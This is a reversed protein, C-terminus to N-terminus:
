GRGLSRFDEWEAVADSLRETRVVVVDGNVALSSSANSSFSVDGWVPFWSGVLKERAEAVLPGPTWDSLSRPPRTWPPLPPTYASLPPPM